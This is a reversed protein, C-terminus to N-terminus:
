ISFKMERQFPFPIADFLITGIYYCVEHDPRPSTKDIRMFLELAQKWRELAYSCVLENLNPTNSDECM